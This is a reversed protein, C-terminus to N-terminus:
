AYRFTPPHAYSDVLVGWHGLLVSSLLHYTGETVIITMSRVLSVQILDTSSGVCLKLHRSMYIYLLSLIVTALRTAQQPYALCISQLPCAACIDVMFGYKGWMNLQCEGWPILPAMFQRASCITLTFFSVKRM